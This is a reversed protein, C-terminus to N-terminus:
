PQKPGKGPTGQAPGQPEKTPKLPHAPPSPANEEREKGKEMEKEREIEKELAQRAREHGRRSRELARELGPRAADPARELVRALVEQQRETLLFMKELLRARQGDPMREVAAQAAESQEELDALLWSPCEASCVAQVEALRRDALSVLLASRAEPAWTLALQVAEVGRKVPYLTDGPVSSEAALVTGATALALVVVLVLSLGLAAWAPRGFWGLRRSARRAALADRVRVLGAALAAPSPAPHRVERVQRATGLLPALGAEELM